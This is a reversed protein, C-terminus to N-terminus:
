GKHWGSLPDYDQVRDGYKLAILFLDQKSTIRLRMSYRLADKMPDFEYPSQCSRKLFSYMEQLQKIAQTQVNPSPAIKGGSQQM